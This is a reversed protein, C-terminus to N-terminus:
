MEHLALPQDRLCRLGLIYLKQVEGGHPDAPDEKMAIKMDIGADKFAAAVTDRTLAAPFNNGKLAKWKQHYFKEFTEFSCYYKEGPEIRFYAEDHLAAWIPDAEVQLLKRQYKFYPPLLKWIDSKEGAADAQQLYARNCKVILAALEEDAIERVLNPNSDKDAISFQFNIVALRRAISGQSDKYSAWENGCLLGPATWKMQHTKQNKQAISISEGSVMSQFEAQNLHFDKKVETCLMVWKDMISSLGFKEEINSSLLGVNEPEFFKQIIESIASKGTGARGKLFPMIQWQDYKRLEHLLRGIFIYVWRQVEHPLGQGPQNFDQRRREQGKSRGSSSSAETAESEKGGGGAGEEEETELGFRRFIKLISTRLDQCLAPIRRLPTERLNKEGDCKDSFVAGVLTMQMSEAAAVVAREVEALLMERVPAKEAADEPDEEEDEKRLGPAEATRLDERFSGHQQYDLISQFKPTPIKFWDGYVMGQAQMTVWQPDFDLDIFTHPVDQLPLQTTLTAYEYFTSFTGNEKRLDYIGNRFSILYRCRKLVPFEPEVGVNLHEVVKRKMNSDLTLQWMYPHTERRCARVVFEDLDSQANPPADPWQVLRFARTGIKSGGSSRSPVKIEEYVKGRLRRYRCELAVDLCHEIVLQLRSSSDKEEERVEEENARTWARLFRGTQFSMFPDMLSDVEAQAGGDRYLLRELVFYSQCFRHSWKLLMHTLAHAKWPSLDIHVNEGLNKLCVQRYYDTWLGEYRLFLDAFRSVVDQENLEAEDGEAVGAVCLFVWRSVEQLKAWFARCRFRGSTYSLEEQLRMIKMVFANKGGELGGDEM